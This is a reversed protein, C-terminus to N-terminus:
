RASAQPVWANSRPSPFGFGAKPRVTSMLPLHPPPSRRDRFGDLGNPGPADPPPGAAARPQLRPRSAAARVWALPRPRESRTKAYYPAMMPYDNPLGWKERYQAPTLGHKTLLHRKLSKYSRGDELSILHDPTISKRIPVAPKLPEAQPEATRTTGALAKQNSHSTYGRKSTTDDISM